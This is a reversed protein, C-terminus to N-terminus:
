ICLWFQRCNAEISVQSEINRNISETGPQWSFQSSLLLVAKLHIGESLILGLSQVITHLWHNRLLHNFKPVDKFNRWKLDTFLRVPILTSPLATSFTCVYTFSHSYDEKPIRDTTTCFDTIRDIKTLQKIKRILSIDWWGLRHITSNMQSDYSLIYMDDRRNTHPRILRCTM